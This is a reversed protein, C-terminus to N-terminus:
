AAAQRLINLPAMEPVSCNELPILNTTVFAFQGSLSAHSVSDTLVMWASFPKFRMEVHGDPNAQFEPTDKMFNHFRRMTRDYPSSDLVHAMRLGAATLGKIIGSRVYDFPGKTLDKKSLQNPSIGAAEGYRAYVDPFTGKTAWVRDENPNVNVFFRFIRDGNTAGYAGADFHVLENSSHPKLDRGREQVPRFSSTGVTWNCSLNPMLSTLFVNVREHHKKLIGSAREIEELTGELGRVRNAEPHYSINKLKLQAPLEERLFALDTESPLEIPCDAFHVVNCRELNEEVEGPTAQALTEKTYTKLM